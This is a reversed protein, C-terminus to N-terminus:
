KNKERVSNFVSSGEVARLYGLLVVCHMSSKELNGGRQDLGDLDVAKLAYKVRASCRQSPLSGDYHGAELSVSKVGVASIEIM